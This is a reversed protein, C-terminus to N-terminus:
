QVNISQYFNFSISVRWGSRGKLKTNNSLVGHALYSPFILLEGEKSPLIHSRWFDPKVNNTRDYHAYHNAPRPDQVYINGSDKPVKVYYVGSWTANPHTHEKNFSYKFNINAWMNGLKSHRKFQNDEDVSRCAEKLLNTFTQYEVKEGMDTTSHWGHENSKQVGKGDKKYWGYINKLLHKNLEKNNPLIFRYIFTPFYMYKM